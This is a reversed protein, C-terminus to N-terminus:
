AVQAVTSDTTLILEYEGNKDSQDPQNRKKCENRITRYLHVFSERLVYASTYIFTMYAYNAFRQSGMLYMTLFQIIYYWDLFITYIEQDHILLMM